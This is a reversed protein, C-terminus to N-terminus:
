TSHDIRVWDNLRYGVFLDVLLILGDPQLILIDLHHHQGLQTAAYLHGVVLYGTAVKHIVVVDDLRGEYTKDTRPNRAADFEVPRLVMAGSGEHGYVGADLLIGVSAHTYPHTLHFSHKMLLAHCAKRQAWATGIQFDFAPQVVTGVHRLGEEPPGIGSHLHVVLILAHEGGVDVGDEIMALPGDRREGDSRAGIIFHVVRGANVDRVVLIDTDRCRIHSDIRAEVELTAVLVVGAGTHQMHGTVMKRWALFLPCPAVAVESTGPIAVQGIFCGQCWGLPSPFAMHRVIIERGRPLRFLATEAGVDLQHGADIGLVLGVERPEHRILLLHERLVEHGIAFQAHHLFSRLVQHEVYFAEGGTGRWFSLPTTM